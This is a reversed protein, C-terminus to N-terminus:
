DAALAADVSEHVPLHRDLGSVRLARMAELQPAAVHLAGPPLAARAELLVGLATSDLFTVQSLDVVVRGPNHAAADALADRVDDANYLDLDGGLRIVTASPHTDVGLVPRERAAGDGEGSV